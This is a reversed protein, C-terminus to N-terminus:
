NFLILPADPMKRPSRELRPTECLRYERCVQIAESGLHDQVVALYYRMLRSGVASEIQLIQQALAARYEAALDAPQARSALRDDIERELLRLHIGQSHLQSTVDQELVRRTPNGVLWDFLHTLNISLGSYAERLKRREANVREDLSPMEPLSELSRGPALRTLLALLAGVLSSDLQARAAAKLGNVIEAPQFAPRHARHASLADYTEAVALIRGELPLEHGGRGYPYGSGDCREHHSRILDATEKLSPIASVIDAGILPHARIHQFEAETLPGPKALLEPALDMYGVDHLLGAAELLQLREPPLGVEKGIAVATLAVAEAHGRTFPDKAEVADALKHATELAAANM